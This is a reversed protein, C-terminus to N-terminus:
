KRPFSLVHSIDQPEQVGSPRSSPDTPHGHAATDQLPRTSVKGQAPLYLGTTGMKHSLFSLGRGLASLLCLRPKFGSLSAGAEHSREGRLAKRPGPRGARGLAPSAEARDGLGQLRKQSAPPNSPCSLLPTDM